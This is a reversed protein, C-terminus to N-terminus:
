RAAFEEPVSAQLYGTKQQVMIAQVTRDQQDATGNKELQQDLHSCAEQL